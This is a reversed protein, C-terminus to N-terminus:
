QTKTADDSAGEKKMSDKKMSDKKMSDKKMNDKSMADSPKVMADAPKQMDDARAAGALMLSGSLLAASLALVARAHTMM